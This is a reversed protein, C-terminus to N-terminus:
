EEEHVSKMDLKNGEMEKKGKERLKGRDKFGKEQTVKKGGKRQL